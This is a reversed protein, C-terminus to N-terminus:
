QSIGSLSARAKACAQFVNLERNQLDHVRAAFYKAEDPTAQMTITQNSLMQNNFQQVEITFSALVQSYNNANITMSEYRTLIADFSDLIQDLHSTQTSSFVPKSYNHSSSQSSYKYYLGGVVVVIGILILVWTLTSNNENM